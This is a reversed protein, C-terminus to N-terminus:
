FISLFRSSIASPKGELASSPLAVSTLDTQLMEDILKGNLDNLELCKLDLNNILDDLSNLSNDISNCRLGNLLSKTAEDDETDTDVSSSDSADDDDDDDESEDDIDEKEDAQKCQHPALNCKPRRMEPQEDFVAILSQHKFNNENVLYKVIDYHGFYTALHIPFWGQKNKINQSAGHQVLIQLLDLYGLHCVRHMLTQGERDVFNLNVPTVDVLSSDADDNRRQGVLTNLRKSDNANIAEVLDARLKFLNGFDLM